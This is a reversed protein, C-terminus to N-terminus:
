QNAKLEEIIQKATQEILEKLYDQNLKKFRYHITTFNPVQPFIGKTKRRLKEPITKRLNLARAHKNKASHNIKPPKKSM